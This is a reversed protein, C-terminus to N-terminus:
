RKVINKPISVKLGLSELKKIAEDKTLGVVDIMEVKKM